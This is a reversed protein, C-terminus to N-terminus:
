YDFASVNIDLTENTALTTSVYAILRENPGLTFARDPSPDLEPDQTTDLGSVSVAAPKGAGTPVAVYHKLAVRYLATVANFNEQTTVFGTPLTLTLAAVSTILAMNDNALTTADQVFLRDGPRWGDAIFSGNVRTISHAGGGGNVLIADTENQTLPRAIGFQVNQPNTASSSSLSIAHIRSGLLGPKFVVRPRTAFGPVFVNPETRAQSFFLPNISM